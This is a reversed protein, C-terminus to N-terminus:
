EIKHIEVRRNKARGAVTENSEVPKSEGYPTLTVRSEDIGRIELHYLVNSLRLQSMRQNVGDSGINDAHGELSLKMNPDAKMIGIVEKKM